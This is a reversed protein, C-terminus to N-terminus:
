LPYIAGTQGGGVFAFMDHFTVARRVFRALKIINFSFSFIFNKVAWVGRFPPRPKGRGSPGRLLSGGAAVLHRHRRLRRNGDGGDDYMPKDERPSCTDNLPTM